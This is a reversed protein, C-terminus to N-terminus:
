FPIPFVNPSTPYVSQYNSTPPPFTSHESCAPICLTLVALDVFSLLPSIAGLKDFVCVSFQGCSTLAAESLSNDDCVKGGATPISILVRNRRATGGGCTKSCETWEQWDGWECAEECQQEICARDEALSFYCGEGGPDRLNAVVRTRSQHGGGCKASCSGWEFWDQNAELIGVERFFHNFFIRIGQTHHFECRSFLQCIWSESVRCDDAHCPDLVCSKIQLLDEPCLKGGVGPFKSIQRQRKTHGAGCSKSCSDWATWETVVCDTVEICSEIELLSGECAKGGAQAAVLIGRRRERKEEYDCPSWPHWEGLECDHKVHPDCDDHWVHCAQIEHLNGHCQRGGDESMQHISRSRWQTGEGCRASCISWSEWVSFTCPEPMESECARTQLLDGSCAFGGCEPKSVIHRSRYRQGRIAASTLNTCNSWTSWESLKCDVAHGCTTHCHKTQLLPGRCPVGCENNMQAIVRQRECLGVCTPETWDSWANFTCDVPTCSGDCSPMSPCHTLNIQSGFCATHQDGVFFRDVSLTGQPLRQLTRTRLTSSDGCQNPCQVHSWESWACAHTEHCISTCNSVEKLTYSECLHGKYNPLSTIERHRWRQGGCHSCSGWMSWPGVHCDKTGEEVCPKLNCQQTVMLNGDCAKGGAQAQQLIDRKREQQGVGCTSSCDSWETWDGIICDSPRQNCGYPPKEGEIPNCHEIAKLPMNDCPQGQGRAYAIHRNRERIGNCSCSCHSWPDWTSVMCDSDEACSPM